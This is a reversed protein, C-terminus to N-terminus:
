AGGLPVNVGWPGDDTWAGAAAACPGEAGAPSEIVSAALAASM